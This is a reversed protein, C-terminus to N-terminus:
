RSVIGMCFQLLESLVTVNLNMFGEVLGSKPERSALFQVMGDFAKSNKETGTVRFIQQYADFEKDLQLMNELYQKVEKLNAKELPITLKKVEGLSIHRNVHSKAGGMMAQTSGGGGSQSGTLNTPNAVGLIPTDGFPPIEDLIDNSLEM